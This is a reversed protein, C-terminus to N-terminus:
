LGYRTFALQRFSSRSFESLSFLSAGLQWTRMQPDILSSMNRLSVFAERPVIDRLGATLAQDVEVGPATRVFLARPSFDEYQALAVYYLMSEENFLSQRRSDEVM